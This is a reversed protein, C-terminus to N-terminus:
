RIPRYDDPGGEDNVEHRASGKGAARSTERKVPGTIDRYNLLYEPM